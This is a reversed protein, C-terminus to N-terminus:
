ILGFCPGPRMLLSPEDQINTKVREAGLLWVVNATSIQPSCPTVCLRLVAYTWPLAILVWFVPLSITWIM